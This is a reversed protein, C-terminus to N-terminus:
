CDDSLSRERSIQYSKHKESFLGISLDRKHKKAANIFFKFIYIFLFSLTSFNIWSELTLIDYASEGDVFDFVPFLYGFALPFFVERICYISFLMGALFSLVMNFFFFRMIKAEDRYAFIM